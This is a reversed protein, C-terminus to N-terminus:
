LGKKQARRLAIECEHGRNRGAGARHIQAGFGELISRNDFQTIRIPHASAREGRVIFDFGLSYVQVSISGEFARGALAPGSGVQAVLKM